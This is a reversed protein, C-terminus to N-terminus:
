RWRGEERGPEMPAWEQGPYSAGRMILEEEGFTAEDRRGIYGGSSPRRQQQSYPMVIGNASDASHHRQYGGGASPPRHQGGSYYRNMGAPPPRSHYHYPQPPPPQRPFWQQSVSGAGAAQYMPNQSPHSYGANTSQSFVQRSMWNQPQNEGPPPRALDPSYPPSPYPGRDNYLRADEPHPEHYEEGQSQRPYLDNPPQRHYEASQRRVQQQQQQPPISWSTQRSGQASGGGPLIISWPTQQDGYEKAPSRALETGVSVVRGSEHTQLAPASGAGRIKPQSLSQSPDIQHHPSPQRLGIGQSLGLYSGSHGEDPGLDRTSQTQELPPGIPTAQSGFSAEVPRFAEPVRVVSREQSAPGRSHLRRFEPMARSEYTPTVHARGEQERSSPGYWGDPPPEGSVAAPPPRFEQQPPPMGIAARAMERRRAAEYEQYGSMSGLVTAPNTPRGQYMPPSAMPKVNEAASPAMKRLKKAPEPRDKVNDDRAAKSSGGATTSSWGLLSKLGSFRKKKPEGGLQVANSNARQPKQLTKMKRKSSDSRELPDLPQAPISSPDVNELSALPTTTSNQSDLKAQMSSRRSSFAQWIASKRRAQKQDIQQPAAPSAEENPTTATEVGWAHVDELGHLDSITDRSPIGGTTPASDGRRFFGSQPRSAQMPDEVRDLGPSMLVGSLRSTSRMREYEAPQANGVSSSSNRFVPHQQFPPTGAPPGSVLSLDVAPSVSSRMDTATTIRDQAYGDGDRPSPMYSLPRDPMGPHSANNSHALRLVQQGFNTVFPSVPSAGTPGAPVAQHSMSEDSVVPQREVRDQSGQAAGPEVTSRVDGAGLSSISSKRSGAVGHRERREDNQEGQEVSVESRADEWKDASSPRRKDAVEDRLVYSDPQAESLQRKAPLSGTASPSSANADERKMKRATASAIIDALAGRAGATEGVAGDQRQGGQRAVLKEQAEIEKSWLTSESPVSKQLDNRRGMESVEVAEVNKITTPSAELIESDILGSIQSGNNSTPSVVAMSGSRSRLVSSEVLMGVRSSNGAGLDASTPRSSLPSQSESARHQQSPLSSIDSVKRQQPGPRPAAMSITPPTHEQELLKGSTNTILGLGEAPNGEAAMLEDSVMETEGHSCARSPLPELGGGFREELGRRWNTQGSVAAASNRRRAQELSAHREGEAFTIATPAPSPLVGLRGVNREVTRGTPTKLPLQADPDNWAEVRPPSAPAELPSTASTPKWTPDVAVDSFDDLPFANTNPRPTDEERNIKAEGVLVATKPEALNEDSLLNSHSLVLSAPRSRSGEKRSRSMSRAKQRLREFVSLRSASRSSSPTSAGDRRRFASTSSASTHRSLDHRKEFASAFTSSPALTGSSGPITTGSDVAPVALADSPATDITPVEEKPQAQVLSTAAAVDDIAPDNPLQLEGLLPTANGHETLMEIPTPARPREPEALLPDIPSAGLPADQASRSAASDDAASPIGTPGEIAQNMEARATDPPSNDEVLKESREATASEVPEARLASDPAQEEPLRHEMALSTDSVASPKDSKIAQEQALTPPPQTAISKDAPSLPEKEEAIGM